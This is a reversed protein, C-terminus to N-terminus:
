GVRGTPSAAETHTARHEAVASVTVRVGGADDPWSEVISGLQRYGLRRYLAAARPNDHEVGLRTAHFGSAAARSELEGVLATGIGLGQWEPRVAVQWIWAWDHGRALDLAGMGVVVGTPLEAVVAEASGQWTARLLEDLIRQHAPGGSWDLRDLDGQQLDRLDLDLCLRM